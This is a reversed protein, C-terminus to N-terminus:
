RVLEPTAVVVLAIEHIEDKKQLSWGPKRISRQQVLGSILFSEGLKLECVSDVERLTIAPIKQGGVEIGQSNDIDAVRPHIALRVKNDGLTTATVDVRTGYEKATIAGGQEAPPVPIEGGVHLSAPVGSMVVVNPTAISKAFQQQELMEFVGVLASNDVTRFDMGQDGRLLPALDVPTSSDGMLKLDVGAQILKTRDIEVVNVRVLVHEPTKTKQRLEAIERQLRDREALKQRLLSHAGDWQTSLPRVATHQAFQPAITPVIISREGAAVPLITPCLAVQNGIDSGSSQGVAVNSVFWICVVGCVFSLARM